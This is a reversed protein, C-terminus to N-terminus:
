RRPRATVPTVVRRRWRAARGGSFGGGGSSPPALASGFGSALDGIAMASAGPGLGSGTEGSIWYISSAAVAEESCDQDREPQAQM